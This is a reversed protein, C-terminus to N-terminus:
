SLGGGEARWRRDAEWATSHSRQGRQRAIGPYSLRTLERALGAILDRAAVVEHHGCGGLLESLDVRRERCVAGIIDQIAVGRDPPIPQPAGVRQPLTGSSTRTTCRDPV